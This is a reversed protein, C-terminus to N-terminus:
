RISNKSDAPKSSRQWRPRSPRRRFTTTRAKWSRSRRAPSRMRPRRCRRLMYEPSASGGMVLTPIRVSGARQSPRWNNAEMIAADYVLTHAVSELLPWQPSNRMPAVAEAPMGVAKTMFIEVADGPRGTSVKEILQMRYDEPVPPRGTGAVYPAEYLALKSFALGHGAAELALAAGSSIGYLFATGGAERLLAELDEVEREVTYPATDGSDGRGRRDYTFVTFHPALQGALPGSSGFGRYGLAGDVLIVAPGEGTRDFAIRTGDKSLVTKM